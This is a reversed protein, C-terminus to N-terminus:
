NDWNDWNDKTWSKLVNYTSLQNELQGCNDMLQGRDTMIATM